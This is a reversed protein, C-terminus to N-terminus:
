KGRTEIWEGVTTVENAFLPWVLETAAEKQEDTFGATCDKLMTTHYGYEYAYRATAELCTNAVLGALVLHTVERQKLQYDLDTNQFSSSYIYDQAGEKGERTVVVDGKEVDPQLGEFIEVGWSGEEFATNKLQSVQMPSAHKWGAIFGPKVQQHLGYYIPIQHAHAYSILAQLNPITNTSALSTAVLPYLKGSPHLFDNYPDTIIIATSM